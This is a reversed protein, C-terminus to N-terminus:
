KTKLTSIYEKFVNVFDLIDSEKIDGINAIRFTNTKSVKGPYITFGRAYLFDHMENFSYDPYKLDYFSAIIVSGSEAPIYSEVDLCAMNFMLLDHNNKYRIYRKEITEMELELIAQQLAYITQVPPTFRLQRHKNLYTWQEYMDFYNTRACGKMKILEPIYSVVFGVGAMGQLCKNSSAILFDIGLKAVDIKYCGYTSMADVILSLKYQKCIHGALSLSNLVGTTTECHVIYMHTFDAEAAKDLVEEYKILSDGFDLQENNVNYIDAIKKARRGYEGNTVILIKSDKPLSSIVAEIAGTGSSGFMVTTYHECNTVFETLKTKVDLMVKGFENERPCIDDKIQAYKVSQTTNAPGPNLLIQKM